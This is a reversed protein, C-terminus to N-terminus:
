SIRSPEQTRLDQSTAAVLGAVLIVVIGIAQEISLTEGLPIMASIVAALVKSLMLIGVLTPSLYQIDRNTLLVSPMFVMGIGIGAAIYIGWYARESTHGACM